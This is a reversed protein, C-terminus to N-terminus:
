NRHQKPVQLDEITSKSSDRTRAKREGTENSELSEHKPYTSSPHSLAKALQPSSLGTIGADM